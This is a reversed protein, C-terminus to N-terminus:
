AHQEPHEEDHKPREDPAKRRGPGAPVFLLDGEGLEKLLDPVFLDGGDLDGAVVDGAFQNVAIRGKPGVDRGTVVGAKRILQVLRADLDLRVALRDAGPGGQEIGPRRDQDHDAEPDEDHPLHLAAPVLGQRESLAAGLQRGTGLLLDGELVNGADVLRLFLELFDDFEELFRLLELLETAPDRLANQQHAGRPGALRQQRARNGTFR